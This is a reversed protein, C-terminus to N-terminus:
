VEILRFTLLGTEYYGPLNKNVMEDLKYGTGTPSSKTKELLVKEFVAPNDKDEIFELPYKNICFRLFNRVDSVGTANNLIPGYSPQEIDTCFMINMEIFKKQGFSVVEVLGNATEAISASAAERYDEQSVYDQLKFQPIYVSGAAQNSTHTSAVATDAGTFGLLTFVDLGVQSGTSILLSFTGTSSITFLREVRDFTVTYTDLGVANLAAEIQEAVDSIAYEGIRITATLEGAGEDFNLYFNDDSIPTIYYFKSYTNLAM